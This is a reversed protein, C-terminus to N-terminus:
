TDWWRKLIRSRLLSRAVSTMHKGDRAIGTVRVTNCLTSMWVIHHSWTQLGTNDNKLAADQVHEHSITISHSVYIQDERTGPVPSRFDRAHSSPLMKQQEYCAEKSEALTWALSTVIPPLPSTALPVLGTILSKSSEAGGESRPSPLPSSSQTLWWHGISQDIM